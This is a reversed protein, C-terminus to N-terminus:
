EEEIVGTTNYYKVEFNDCCAAGCKSCTFNLYLEEDDWVFNKIDIDGEADCFPCFGRKNGEKELM